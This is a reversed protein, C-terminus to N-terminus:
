EVIDRRGFEHGRGLDRRGEVKWERLAGAGDTLYIGRWRESEVM